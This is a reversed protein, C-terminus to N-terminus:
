APRRRNNHTATDRYSSPVSSALGTTRREHSRAMDHMPQSINNPLQRVADRLANLLCVRHRTSRDARRPRDVERIGTDSLAMDPLDLPICSLLFLLYFVFRSFLVALRPTSVIGKKVSISLRKTISISSLANAGPDTGLLLISAPGHNAAARQKARAGDVEVRSLSRPELFNPLPLRMGFLLTNREVGIGLECLFRVLCVLHQTCTRAHRVETTYLHASWQHLKQRPERPAQPTWSSLDTANAWRVGLGTAALRQGPVTKSFRRMRLYMSSFPFSGPVSSSSSGSSRSGTLVLRTTRGRGGFKV